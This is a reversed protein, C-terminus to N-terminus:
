TNSPCDPNLNFRPMCFIGNVAVNEGDRKACNLAPLLYQLNSIDHPGKKSLPIIHDITMGKPCDACFLETLEKNNTYVQAQLKLVNYKIRRNKQSDKNNAAWNKQRLREKLRYENVTALKERRRRNRDDQTSANYITMYSKHQEVFNSNSRRKASDLRACEVCRRSTTFRPCNHGKVCPKGNYYQLQNLAQAEKASKPFM